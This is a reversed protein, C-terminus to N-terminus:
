AVQSILWAILLVDLAWHAPQKLEPQYQARWIQVGLRVLFLAVVVYPSVPPTKLAIPMLLLVALIVLLLTSLRTLWAPAQPPTHDTHTPSSPTM